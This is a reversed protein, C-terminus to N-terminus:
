MDSLSVNDIQGDSDGEENIEKVLEYTIIVPLLVLEVHPGFDMCAFRYFDMAAKKGLVKTAYEINEMLRYTGDHLSQLYMAKGDEALTAVVYRILEKEKIREYNDM